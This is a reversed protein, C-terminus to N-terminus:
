ITVWISWPTPIKGVNVRVKVMRHEWQYANKDGLFFVHAENEPAQKM